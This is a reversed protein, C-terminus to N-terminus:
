QAEEAEIIASLAEEVEAKAAVLAESEALKLRRIVEAQLDPFQDHIVKILTENFPKPSDRYNTAGESYQGAIVLKLAAHAPSLQLIDNGRGQARNHKLWAEAESRKQKANQYVTWKPGM